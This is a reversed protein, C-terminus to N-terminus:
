WLTRLVLHYFDGFVVFLLPHPGCDIKAVVETGMPATPAAAIQATVDLVTGREPAVSTRTAVRDLVAAHRVEPNTALVYDV